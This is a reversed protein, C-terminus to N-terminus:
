AFTLDESLYEKTEAIQKTKYDKAASGSHPIGSVMNDKRRSCSPPSSSSHSESAPTHSSQLAPSEGGERVRMVIYNHRAQGHIATDGGGDSAGIRERCLTADRRQGPSSLSPHPRHASGRRRRGERNKGWNGRPRLTSDKSAKSRDMRLAAIDNFYDAAAAAVATTKM